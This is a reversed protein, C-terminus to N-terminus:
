KTYKNKDYKITLQIIFNRVFTDSSIKLRIKKLSVNKYFTHSHKFIGRTEFFSTLGKRDCLDIQLQWFKNSIGM